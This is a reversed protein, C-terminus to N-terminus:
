LTHPTKNHFMPTFSFVLSVLTFGFNSESIPKYTAAIKFTTHSLADLKSAQFGCPRLSSGTKWGIQNMIDEKDGRIQQLM